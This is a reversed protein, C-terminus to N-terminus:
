SPAKNQQRARLQVDYTRGKDDRCSGGGFGYSGGRLDCRLGSGDQAQMLATSSGGDPNDISVIGGMGWGRRGFGGSVYGTARDPTVQVWSGNYTKDEITVSIRGESATTGEATGYYLKGTDRPMLTLQYTSACGGLILAAAAMTLQKRM